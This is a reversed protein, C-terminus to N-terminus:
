ESLFTTNNKPDVEVLFKSINNAPVSEISGDNYQVKVNENISYGDASTTSGVIKGQKHTSRVVVSEGIQWKNTMEM